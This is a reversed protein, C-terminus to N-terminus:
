FKYALKLGFRENKEISGKTVEYSLRMEFREDLDAIMGAGWSTLQGEREQVIKVTANGALGAALGVNIEPDNLAFRRGVEGYLRVNTQRIGFHTGLQVRPHVDALFNNTSSAYTELGGTGSEEYQSQHIQFFDIDLMPTLDFMGTSFRYGARLRSSFAWAKRESTATHTVTEDFVDSYRRQADTKSRTALLSTSAFLNDAVYKYIVGAHTRDTEATSAVRDIDAQDRGLAFGLFSNDGVSKQWGFAINTSDEDHAAGGLTVNTRTVSSWVCEGQEVSNLAAGQEGGCSHMNDSTNRQAVTPGQMDPDVATGALKALETSLGDLTAANAAQLLIQYIAGSTDPSETESIAGVHQQALPAILAATGTLGTPNLNVDIGNIDVVFAGSDLSSYLTFTTAPTGATPKAGSVDLGQFPIDSMSVSQGQEIRVVSFIQEFAGSPLSTLNLNIAAGPDGSVSNVSLTQSSIRPSLEGVAIAPGAAVDLTHIAGANIHYDFPGSINGSIGSQNTLSATFGSSNFSAKIDGFAQYVTVASGAAGLTGLSIADGGVNQIRGYVTIDSKAGVSTDSTIGGYLITSGNFTITNTGGAATATVDIDGYYLQSGIDATADGVTLFTNAASIDIATGTGANIIGNINALLNGTDYLKIGGASGTQATIKANDGLTFATTVNNPQPISFTSSVDWTNGAMVGWSDTGSVSINGDVWMNLSRDIGGKSPAGTSGYYSYTEMVLGHSQTGSTQITSDASLSFSNLVQLNAIPLSQSQRYTQQGDAAFVTFLANGSQLFLGPAYNGTTSITSATLNFNLGGSKGDSTSTQTTVAVDSLNSSTFVAGGNGAISQAVIGVAGSGSTAVNFSGGNEDSVTILGSNGDGGSSFGVATQANGGTTSDIVSNLFSASGGGGVSQLVMGAAATGGTSVQIDCNENTSGSECGVNIAGGDGHVGGTNLSFATTVTSQAADNLLGNSGAVGAHGGGGGVSQAFMGAALDGSTTANINQLTIAGGSGGEGGSGGLNLTIGGSGDSLSADGGGGGVSQAFVGHSQVGSTNIIADSVDVTSGSGGTGASGGLTLGLTLNSLGAPAKELDIHAAGASGGGGGISQAFIGYSQDGNTTLTSLAATSQDRLLQVAGGNGGTGGQGGLAANFSYTGIGVFGNAVAHGGMGGGGGVSQAVAGHSQRENTTVQGGDLLIKAISGNGGGGSQGGLNVSVDLNGRVEAGSGPVFAAYRTAFDTPNTPISTTVDLSSTYGGNGGGGGVSQAVIGSSRIQNTTVTGGWLAILASSGDGAAGGSGGLDINSTIASNNIKGPSTAATDVSLSESYAHINGGNGGGGGISQVFVGTSAVGYTEVTGVIGSSVAAANAGAGGSGGLNVSGNFTLSNSERNIMSDSVSGGGTTHSYSHVSGGNGGGGGISQAVVGMAHDGYTTVSANQGVNAAAGGTTGGNGADGGMNVHVSVTIPGNAGAGDVVNGGNGGGGAISQALIGSSHMGYTTVSGGNLLAQAEGSSGGVGGDAGMAVSVNANIVGSSNSQSSVTGGSGGGGGISQAVIGGAARGGTIISTGSDSTVTVAEGDGGSGGKGGKSVTVAVGVLGGAQALSVAHGGSGGGGGISQALVGPSHDGAVYGGMTTLPTQVSSYDTNSTSIGTQITSGQNLNVAVAEGDGGVGGSGGIALSFAAGAIDNSTSQATATGGSGGGGGVSLAKIGMSNLGLTTITSHNEVNVTGGNGGTGGSGGVAVAVYQDKATDPAGMGGQGGASIAVLGPSSLGGTIISGTNIASINGATVGTSATGGVSYKNASTDFNIGEGVAAGSTLVMGPALPAKIVLGDINGAAINFNTNLTGGNYGVLNGSITRGSMAIGGSDITGLNIVGVSHNDVTYAFFIPENPSGGYIPPNILANEANVIVIDGFANFGFGYEQNTCNVFYASPLNSNGDGQYIQTTPTPIAISGGFGTMDPLTCNDSASQASALTTHLLTYVSTAGLFVARIKGFGRAKHSGTNSVM